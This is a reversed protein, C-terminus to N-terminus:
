SGGERVVLLLDVQMGLSCRKAPPFAAEPNNSAVEPLVLDNSL